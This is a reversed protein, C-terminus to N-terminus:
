VEVLLVDTWWIVAVVMNGSGGYIVVQKVFFQLVCKALYRVFYLCGPLNQDLLLIYSSHKEKFIM